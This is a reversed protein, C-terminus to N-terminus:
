RRARKWEVGGGGQDLLKRKRHDITGFRSNLSQANILSELTFPSGSIPSTADGERLSIKFPETRSTTHFNVEKVFNGDDGKASRDQFGGPLIRDDVLFSASAQDLQSVLADFEPTRVRLRCLIRGACQYTGNVFQFPRGPDLEFLFLEARIRYVLKDLAPSDLMTKRATESMETLDVM